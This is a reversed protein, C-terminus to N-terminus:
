TPEVKKVAEITFGAKCGGVKVHDRIWQEPDAPKVPKETM